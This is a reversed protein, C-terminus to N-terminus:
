SRKLYIFSNKEIIKACLNNPMNLSEMAEVGLEMINQFGKPNDKSFKPFVLFRFVLGLVLVILTIIYSIVTTKAVSFGFISVRESLLSFELNLGAKKTSVASIVTGILFWGGFVALASFLLKNKKLKKEDGKDNKIKSKTATIGVIGFCLCLTSVLLEIITIIKM